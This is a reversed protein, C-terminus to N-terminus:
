SFAELLAARQKGGLGRIRRNDAIGLAEMMRKAKVKGNGPMSALVSEVKLGGILDDLEARELLEAFTLSGTKLLEKVEARSRRAEAARALARERQEDSLRPPQM